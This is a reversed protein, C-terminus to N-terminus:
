GGGRKARNELRNQRRRQNREELRLKELWEAAPKRHRRRRWKLYEPWSDPVQLALRELLSILPNYESGLAEPPQRDVVGRGVFDVVVEKPYTWDLDDEALTAVTVLEDGRADRYTGIWRGVHVHFGTEPILRLAGPYKATVAMIADNLQQKHWDWYGELDTKGRVVPVHEWLAIREDM